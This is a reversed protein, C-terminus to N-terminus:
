ELRAGPSRAAFGAWTLYLGIALSPALYLYYHAGYQMHDFVQKL